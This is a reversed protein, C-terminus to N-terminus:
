SSAQHLQNFICLQRVYTPLDVYKVYRNEQYLLIKREQGNIEYLYVVVDVIKLVWLPVPLTLAMAVVQLLESFSGDLTRFSKSTALLSLNYFNNKPFKNISKKLILSLFLLPLHMFSASSYLTSMCVECWFRHFKSSFM